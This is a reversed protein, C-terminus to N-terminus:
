NNTDLMKVLKKWSSIVDEMFEDSAMEPYVHSIDEPEYVNIVDFIAKLEKQTFNDM